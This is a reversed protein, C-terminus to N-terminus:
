CTGEHRSLYMLLRPEDIEDQRIDDRRSIWLVDLQPLVVTPDASPRSGSSPSNEDTSLSPLATFVNKTEDKDEYEEADEVGSDFKEITDVYLLHLTRLNPLARFVATWDDEQWNNLPVSFVTISAFQAHVNLNGSLGEAFYNTPCAFLIARVDLKVTHSFPHDLGQDLPPLPGSYVVLNWHDFELGVPPDDLDRHLTLTELRPLSTIGRSHLEGSLFCFTIDIAELLPTSSLAELLYTCLIHIKELGLYTLSPATFPIFCKTFGLTTVAPLDLPPGELSQLNDDPRGQYDLDPVKLAPWSACRLTHRLIEISTDIATTWVLKRLRKLKGVVLFTFGPDYGLPNGGRIYLNLLVDEGAREIFEPLALPLVGLHLAWLDPTHLCLKRRHRNVHSIRIWGLTSGDDETMFFQYNPPDIIAVVKFILVMIEPPLRSIPPVLSQACSKPYAALNDGESHLIHALSAREEALSTGERKVEEFRLKRLMDRAHGEWLPLSPPRQGTGSRGVGLHYYESM